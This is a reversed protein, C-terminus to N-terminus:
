EQQATSVAHRLRLRGAQGRDVVEGAGTVSSIGLRGYYDALASHEIACGLKAACVASPRHERHRRRRRRAPGPSLVHEVAELAAGVSGIGIGAQHDAPSPHEVACCVAASIVEARSPTIACYKRQRWWGRRAALPGLRHDMNKSVRGIVSNNRSRTQRQAWLPYYPVVWYPGPSLPVTYVTVGGADGPTGQVSFM